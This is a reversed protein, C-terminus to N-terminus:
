CDCGHGYRRRLGLGSFTSGPVWLEAGEPTLDIGDPTIPFPISAVVAGDALRVKVVSGPGPTYPGIAIYAYAGDPTLVIGHGGGGLGSITRIVEDTAVSVVQMVDVWDALIYVLSDNSSIAIEDPDTYGPITTTGNTALDVKTTHYGDVTNTAYLYRGDSTIALRRPDYGVHISDVLVYDSLRVKYVKGDGGCSSAVYLYQGEPSVVM